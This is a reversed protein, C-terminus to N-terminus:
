MEVALKYVIEVFCFSFIHVLVECLLRGYKVLEPEQLKLTAVIMLGTLIDTVLDTSCTLVSLSVSIPFHL